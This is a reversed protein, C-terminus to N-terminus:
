ENAKGKQLQLFPLVSDIQLAVGSAKGGPVGFRENRLHLEATSLVDDLYGAMVDDITSGKHSIVYRLAELIARLDKHHIESYVRAEM